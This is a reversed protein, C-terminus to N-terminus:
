LKGARPMRQILTDRPKVLENHMTKTKTHERFVAKSFREKFCRRIAIEGCLIVAFPYNYFKYVPSSAESFVLALVNRKRM